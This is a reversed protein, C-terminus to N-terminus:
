FHQHFSFGEVGIIKGLPLVIYECYRNFDTYSGQKSEKILRYMDLFVSFGNESSIYVDIMLCGNRLRAIFPKSGVAELLAATDAPATQWEFMGEAIVYHMMGSGTDNKWGIQEFATIIDAPSYAQSLLIDLRTDMSMNNQGKM